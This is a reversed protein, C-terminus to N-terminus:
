TGRGAPLPAPTHLSVVNSGRLVVRGLRRTAEQTREEVEDLVLNLHEDSGLLVGTLVREDKLRLSVRQQLARDLLAPISDPM